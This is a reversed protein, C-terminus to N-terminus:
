APVAALQPRAQEPRGECPPIWFFGSPWMGGCGHCYAVTQRSRHIIATETTFEHLGPPPPM